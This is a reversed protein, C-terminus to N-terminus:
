GVYHEEHDEPIEQSFWAVAGYIMQVLLAGFVMSLLFLASGEYLVGIAIVAFGSIVKLVPSVFRHTLEQERRHSFSEVLAIFILTAGGSLSVLLRQNEGIHEPHLVLSLTGSGLAVICLVLPMHLYTWIFAKSVLYHAGRRAVYDFYNWWMGFGVAIGLGAAWFQANTHHDAGTIGAVTAVVTEGLVIITFLGFRENLKPSLQITGKRWLGEMSFHYLPTGLDIVLAAIFIPISNASFVSAIATIVALSFGTAFRIALTRLEPVFVAARIYLVVIILKAAAYSLVFRTSDEGFEHAFVAMGAVPFMMLFTYIRTELGYTELRENYFTLGIWVWWLPVFSLVYDAFGSLSIHHAFTHSVAAIAVVFFLDYYLELWTVRREQDPNILKPKQFISRRM